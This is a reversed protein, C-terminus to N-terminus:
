FRQVLAGGGLTDHRFADDLKALSVKETGKYIPDDVVHVLLGVEVTGHDHHLGDFAAHYVPKVSLVAEVMDVQLAPLVTLRYVCECANIDDATGEVGVRLILGEHCKGLLGLNTEHNGVGGLCANSKIISALKGVSRGRGIRAFQHLQEEM